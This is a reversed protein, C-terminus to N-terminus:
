SRSAPGSTCTFARAGNWAAGIVMGISALEDEAQVVRLAGQRQRPRHPVQPLAERLGRWRPRRRSRYWAGGDRGGYVCGLAAASNGELFVRNGVKDSPQVKLGIPPLHDRAYDRGMHLAKVNPELLKEKGKYQEGISSRSQALDSASCTALAGVYIINKFLQRQRPDSYATNCIEM